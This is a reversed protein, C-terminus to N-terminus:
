LYKVEMKENQPTKIIAYVLGVIVSIAVVSLPFFGFGFSFLALLGMGCLTFVVEKTMELKGLEKCEDLKLQQQEKM